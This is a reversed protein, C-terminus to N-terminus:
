LEPTEQSIKVGKTGTYVPILVGCLSVFNVVEGYSHRWAPLVLLLM